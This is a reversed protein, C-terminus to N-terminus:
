LAYTNQILKFGLSEFLRRSPENGPAINALWHGNRVGPEAPNPQHKEMLARVGLSGYGQTRYPKRIVIGIENAHTASVYGVWLHHESNAGHIVHALLYCFRYMRRVWFQRHQEFTPLERHSINIEEERDKMMQYLYELVLPSPGAGEYIDLLKIKIM